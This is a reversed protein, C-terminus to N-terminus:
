QYLTHPFLPNADVAMALLSAMAGVGTENPIYVNGSAKMLKERLEKPAKASMIGHPLYLQPQSLWLTYMVKM